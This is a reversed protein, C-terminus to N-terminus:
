AEERKRYVTIKAKGYRYERYRTFDGATEPPDERRETECVIVGSERMLAACLPLVQELIGKQYPPDLLAIDFRERSGRLYAAADMAAVSANEQLGTKQLNERVVQQAQRSVDVFVCYGAGRSLAEIGLQGSGAFLDLVRAGPLENQLISFIAEKAVESTPRIEMGAPSLLRRGRAQGTIVRMSKEGRM